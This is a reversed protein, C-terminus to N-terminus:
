GLFTPIKVFTPNRLAAWIAISVQHNIEILFPVNVVKHLEDDTESVLMVDRNKHVLPVSDVSNGFFVSSELVDFVNSFAQLIQVDSPGPPSPSSAMVALFTPGGIDHVVVVVILKLRVLLSQISEFWVHGRLVLM